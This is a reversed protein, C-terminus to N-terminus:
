MVPSASPLGILSRAFGGVASGAREITGPDSMAAGLASHMLSQQAVAVIQQQQLLNNQVKQNASSQVTNFENLVNENSVSQLDEPLSALDLAITSTEEDLVFKANRFFRLVALEVISSMMQVYHQFGDSMLWREVPANMNLLAILIETESPPAVATPAQQMGFSQALGAGFGGGLPQQAQLANMAFGNQQNASVMPAGSLSLNLPQAAQQPAPASSFIGM